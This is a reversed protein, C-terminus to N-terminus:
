DGYYGEALCEKLIERARHLRTAATQETIGLLEASEHTNFGYILRLDVIARQETKLLNLCKELEDANEYALIGDEPKKDTIDTNEDLLTTKSDRKRRYIDIAINKVITICVYNREERSIDYFADIHKLIRVFAEQVADEASSKQLIKCATHLMIQKNDNYMEEILNKDQNPVHSLSLPM